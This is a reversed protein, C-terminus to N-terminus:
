SGDGKRLQQKIIDEDIEEDLFKGLCIFIDFITNIMQPYQFEM